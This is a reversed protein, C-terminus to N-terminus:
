CEGPAVSRSDYVPDGSPPYVSFPMYNVGDPIPGGPPPACSAPEWKMLCTQKSDNCLSVTVQGFPGCCMASSSISCSKKCKGGPGAGYINRVELQTLARSFIEVEDIAGLFSAAPGAIPHGRGILLNAVNVLSGQKGTPIFQGAIEGNVYLVVSTDRDVTAAVHTWTCTPIPDGTSIFDTQGPNFPDALTLALRGNFLYLRYGAIEGILSAGRKDVIPDITAVGRTKGDVPLGACPWIWADISLDGTGFNLRNYNPVQVHGAGFFEMSNGVLENPRPFVFGVVIGDQGFLVEETSGTTTPDEDLPWWAVMDAPPTACGLCVDTGGGINNVEDCELITGDIQDSLDLAGTDDAVVFLSSTGPPLTLSVSIDEWTGPALTVLTSTSILLAGGSLPDGDYFSVAAGAAVDVAGGNGIRATVTGTNVDCRVLSATLDPAANVPCRASGQTNSRFTNPAPDDPPGGGLWNPPIYLPISGDENVHTISYPHQNWIARTNVWSDNLDGYVLIGQDPGFCGFINAPVVIEANCDGDVDVVIPNELRTQSSASTQLRINGTAGDFVFLNCEDSYVVEARGDGEFDFVSSGTSNSSTDQVPASWLLSLVPPTGTVDFVAYRTGGAVGIEPQGDNDFDAITPPGGRAQSGPLTATSLVTGDDDLLAINNWEWVVVVEAQIDADFNGVASFGDGIGAPQTWFAPIGGTNTHVRPGNM